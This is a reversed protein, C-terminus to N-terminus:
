ALCLGMGLGSRRTGPASAMVAANVKWAIRAQRATLIDIAGVLDADEEFGCKVCKSEAQSQGRRIRLHLHNRRGSEKFGM